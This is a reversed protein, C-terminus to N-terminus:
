MENAGVKRSTFGNRNTKEMQEKRGKPVKRWGIREKSGLQITEGTFHVGRSDFHRQGKEGRCPNLEVKM